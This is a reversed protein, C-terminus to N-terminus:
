FRSLVRSPRWACGRWRGPCWWCARWRTRRWPGAPPTARLLLQRLDEGLGAPDLVVGLLDPPRRDLDAATREGLGLELGRRQGADADGVLALGRHHPVAAVPLGIWLAMTQCSRRVASRQASSFRAPWSPSTVSSSRGAARDRNRRCWSRRSGRGRRRRAPRPRSPRAPRRCWRISGATAGSRRCPAHSRRWWHWGCGAARCGCPCRPRLDASAAPRAPSRQQRLDDVARALEADGVASMRPAGTGTSPMAPSWCAAVTPWAQMLGPM